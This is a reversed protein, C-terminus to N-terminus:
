VSNGKLKEEKEELDKHLDKVKAEEKGSDKASDKLQILEAKLGEYQEELEVRHALSFSGFPV